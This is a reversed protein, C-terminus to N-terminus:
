RAAAVSPPDAWHLDECALVCPGNATLGPLLRLTAATVRSQMVSPDTQTLVVGEPRLPLALLHAFYPAVDVSEVGILTALERDLIGRAEAETANPGIGLTARVLDILLHYPLNRGYSVCRAEIWRPAPLSQTPEADLRHRLAALLPSKGIGPEALLFAVRGRGARVTPLLNLLTELPGDRGVMPSELGVSALGRKPGPAERRALIRYAHVPESKGKVEIGGLDEVDFAEKALKLTHETVLVTGPAAAAQMRAATNM